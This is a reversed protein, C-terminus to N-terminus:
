ILVVFRGLTLAVLPHPPSSNLRLRDIFLVLFFGSHVEDQTGERRSPWKGPSGHSHAPLPQLRLLPLPKSRRLPLGIAILFVNCCGGVNELWQCLLWKRALAVWQGGEGLGNWSTDISVLHNCHVIFSWKRLSFTSMAFNYKKLWKRLFDWLQGVRGGFSYACFQKTQYLWHKNTDSHM